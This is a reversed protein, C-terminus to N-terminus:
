SQRRRRYELVGAIMMVGIILLGQLVQATNPDVGKASLIPNLFFVIIAAAVAGLVSGRGGTLAIGGLVIAAVSNLTATGGNLNPNGRGTIGLTALGAMAAMAGGMGYAQVKARRVDVGSLYAANRDSGTAYIALGIRRQRLVYALLLAPIAMMILSNTFNTGSGVESGTFLERLGASTGGGPSSLVVLALGTWIFSTALTVVIDPVGSMNVIWGVSGNLIAGGVIILVSLVLTTGFPQDEMLRAAVSSLLVMQAGISLDIGGAIVIVAQGMALYVLPLSNKSISALQFGGFSPILTAYYFILAILLVWVGITWGQQKIVQNLSIGSTRSTM